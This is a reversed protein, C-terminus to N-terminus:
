LRLHHSSKGMWTTTSVMLKPNILFHSLFVIDIKWEM